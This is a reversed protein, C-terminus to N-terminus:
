ENERRVSSQPRQVPMTSEQRERIRAPVNNRTHAAHREQTPQAQVNSEREQRGTRPATRRGANDRYNRVAARRIVRERQEETYAFQVNENGAGAADAANDMRPRLVETHPEPATQYADMRMHLSVYEMEFGVARGEAGSGAFFRSFSPREVYAHGNEGREPEFSGAQIVATQGDSESGVASHQYKRTKNGVSSSAEPATIYDYFKGAAKTTTKIGRNALSFGDGSKILMSKAYGPSAAGKQLKSLAGILQDKKLIIFVAMVTQVIMVVLWGWAVACMDFLMQDVKVLLGIIFSMILISLQSELIKRLWVGLLGEYGPVMALILVVPALVVYFVAILQFVLTLLALLIYVLSKVVFPILYLFMFGIKEGARKKSFATGNHNKVADKRNPSDVENGLFLGVEEETVTDAEEGFEIFKWPQHILNVWLVGASEAAFDTTAVNGQMGVMAQASISKTIGTAASLVTASDRVVLFSLIVIGVVKLIQGFAGMLDRRLMKKLLVIACGCFGLLFLPQFIGSNLTEQIADIQDKFLEAMDFTMCQYFLMVVVNALWRIFTFLLNAISNLLWYGTELLDTDEMDLYYNDPVNIYGADGQLEKFADINNNVAGAASAQFSISFVIGACLLAMALMMYFCYKKKDRM